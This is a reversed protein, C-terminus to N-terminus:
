KYDTYRPFAKIKKWCQIALMTNVIRRWPKYSYGTQLAYNLLLLHGDLINRRKDELAAAEPSGEPLTHEAWYTKLHGLHMDSTPSTSTTEDWVKLKGRYEEPTLEAPIADPMTAYRFSDVLQQVLEPVTARQLHLPGHPPDAQSDNEDQTTADDTDNAVAITNVNEHQCTETNRSGPQLYTGNLIAEAQQCTASFEMMFDM